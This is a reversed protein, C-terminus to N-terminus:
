PHLVPLMTWSPASFRSNAQSRNFLCLPFSSPCPSFAALCSGPRKTTAGHILRVARQFLRAAVCPGAPSTDRGSELLGGQKQALWIHAKCRSPLGPRKWAGDPCSVATNDSVPMGRHSPGPWVGAILSIAYGSM